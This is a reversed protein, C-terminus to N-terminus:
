VGLHRLLDTGNGAPDILWKAALGPVAAVMRAQSIVPATLGRSCRAGNWSKRTPSALTPSVAKLRRTRMKGLLVM